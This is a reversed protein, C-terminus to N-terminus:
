LTEIEEIIWSVLCRETEGQQLYFCSYSVHGDRVPIKINTLKKFTGEYYTPELLAESVLVRIKQGKKLGIAKLENYVRNTTYNRWVHRPFRKPDPNPSKTYWHHPGKHKM